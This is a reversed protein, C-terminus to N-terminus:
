TKPRLVVLMDNGGIFGDGKFPFAMGLKNRICKEDAALFEKL